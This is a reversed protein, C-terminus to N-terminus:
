ELSWEIEPRLMVPQVYGNTVRAFEMCREVPVQQVGACWRSMQSRSVHMAVALRQQEGHDRVYDALQQCFFAPRKPEVKRRSKRAPSKKKSM